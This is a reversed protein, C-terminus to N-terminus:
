SKIGLGDWYKTISHEHTAIDSDSHSQLASLHHLHVLFGQQRHTSEPLAQQVVLDFKIGHACADLAHVIGDLGSVSGVPCHQLPVGLICLHDSEIGLEQLLDLVVGPISCFPERLNVLRIPQHLEELM